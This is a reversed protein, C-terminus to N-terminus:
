KDIFKKGYRQIYLNEWEEISSSVVDTSGCDDCYDMDDVGMIKLSLCSTCYLVPEKNYKPSEQTEISNQM